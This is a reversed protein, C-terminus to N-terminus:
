FDKAKIGVLLDRVCGGVLYAQHNSKKLLKIIEISLPSFKSEKLIKPAKLLSSKNKKILLKSEGM